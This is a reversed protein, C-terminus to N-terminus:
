QKIETADSIFAFMANSLVADMGRNRRVVQSDTFCPAARRSARPAPACRAAGGISPRDDTNACHEVHTYLRTYADREGCHVGDDLHTLWCTSMRLYSAVWSWMLDKARGPRERSQIRTLPRSRFGKRLSQERLHSPRMATTLTQRSPPVSPTRVCCTVSVPSTRSVVPM